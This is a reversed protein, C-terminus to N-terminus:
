FRAVEWNTKRDFFCIEMHDNSRDSHIAGYYYNRHHRLNRIDFDGCPDVCAEGNELRAGYGVLVMWYHVLADYRLRDEQNLLDFFLEFNVERILSDEDIILSPNGGNELLLTLTDAAIYGNDIFRLEDMINYYTTIEDTLAETFIYNPDLGHELLIRVADVMHSSAVGPVNAGAVRLQIQQEDDGSDLDFICDDVYKYAAKNIDEKTYARSQLATKLADLDFNKTFLLQHLRNAEESLTIM